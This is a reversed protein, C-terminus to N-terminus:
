DTLGKMMHVTIVRNEIDRNLVCDPIVPLLLQKGNDMTVDYVDNAGTKLVDSLKGIHNGEDDVVDAGLIDAIYYEGEKLPVANDRTVYLDLGKLPEVDEIRDLGEFKLIVLNKFFRCSTCKLETIGDKKKVFCEKLKKFRATDDTTPFVKVEGKLGHTNNIVGVRFENEM